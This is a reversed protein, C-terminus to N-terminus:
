AGELGFARILGIGDEQSFRGFADIIVVKLATMAAQLHQNPLSGSPKRVKGTRFFRSRGKAEAAPRKRQKLAM